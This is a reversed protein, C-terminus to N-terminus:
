PVTGSLVSRNPGFGRTARAVIMVVDDGSKLKEFIRTVDEPRRIETRNISLIVDGPMLGLSEAFSEEEIEGVVAGRVAGLKLVEAV